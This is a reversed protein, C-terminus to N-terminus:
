KVIYLIRVGGSYDFVNWAANAGCNKTTEIETWDGNYVKKEEMDYVVYRVKSLAFVKSKTEDKLAVKMFRENVDEIQGIVLGQDWYGSIKISTKFDYTAYILSEKNENPKYMIVLGDKDPICGTKDTGYKIIDGVEVTKGSKSCVIGELTRTWAYSYSEGNTVTLMYCIDGDSNLTRNIETVIVFESGKLGKLTGNAYVVVADALMKDDDLTYISHVYKTDVVLRKDLINTAYVDEITGDSPVIFLKTTEDAGIANSGRFNETVMGTFRYYGNYIHLSKEDEKPKKSVGNEDSYAFDISKLENKANYEVLALNGTGYGANSIADLANLGDTYTEGDIKVRSALKSTKCENKETYLKVYVENEMAEKIVAAKGIYAFLREDKIKSTMYAIKGDHRLYAKIVAGIEPMQETKEYEDYIEYETGDIEVKGNSLKKSLTGEVTVASILVKAYYGDLSKMVSLVNMNTISEINLLVGSSNTVELIRFDKFSISKPESLKNFVTMDEKYYGDMVITEYSEVICVEYSNDNNNDILRVRGCEPKMAKKLDDSTIGGSVAINNYILSYGSTLSVKRTKNLTEDAYYTYTSNDYSEIEDADIVLENNRNKPVYRYLLEREGHTKTYYGTIRYGLMDEARSVDTYLVDDIKIYGEKLESRSNLSTVANDTVVGKVEYIGLRREMFTQTGIKDAFSDRENGGDLVTFLTNYVMRLAAARSVANEGAAVGDLIGMSAAQVAYGNKEAWFEYGLIRIIVKYVEDFSIESEPEFRLSSRGVMIGSNRLAMISGFNKHTPPVDSFEQEVGAKMNRGGAILGAALEAFEGRTISEATNETLERDAFGLRVMFENIEDNVASESNGEALVSAMNLMLLCVLGFALYRKMVRM